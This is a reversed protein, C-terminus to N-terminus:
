GCQLDYEVVMRREEVTLDKGNEGLSGLHIGIISFLLRRGPVVRSREDRALSAQIRPEWLEFSKGLLYTAHDPLNCEQLQFKNFDFSKDCRFSM